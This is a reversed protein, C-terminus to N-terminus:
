LYIKEANAPYDFRLGSKDLSNLTYKKIEITLKGEFEPFEAKIIAPLKMGDYDSYESYYVNIVTEGDKNIRQYQVITSDAPNILSYEVYEGTNNEFLVHGKESKYDSVKYEEPDAPTENRLIKVLDNFSLPLNVARRLNEESPSGLYVNNEFINYFILEKESSFMRGLPIGLPGHLVMSVSDSGAIMVNTNASNNLEPMDIVVSAKMELTHISNKNEPHTSLLQYKDHQQVTSCSSLILATLFAILFYKRM